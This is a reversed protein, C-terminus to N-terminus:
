KSLYYEINSQNIDIYVEAEEMMMRIWDNSQTYNMNGWGAAPISDCIICPNLRNHALHKWPVSAVREHVHHYKNWCQECFAVNIVDNTEKWQGLNIM